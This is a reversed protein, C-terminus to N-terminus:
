AKVGKKKKGPVPIADNPLDDEGGPQPLLSMSVEALPFAWLLVGHRSRCDWSIKESRAGNKKSPDRFVEIEIIDGSRLYRGLFLEGSSQLKGLIREGDKPHRKLALIYSGDPFLRGPIEESAFCFCGPVSFMHTEDSPVSRILEGISEIAPDFSALSKLPIVRVTRDAPTTKGVYHASPEAAALVPMFPSLVPKVKTNWLKATMSRTKGRRWFIITSHAVGMAKALESVNGYQDAARSLADLIEQTIKM